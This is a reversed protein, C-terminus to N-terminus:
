QYLALLTATASFTGETLVAGADKVPVAKLKPLNSPNIVFNKSLEMPKDNITIQIGLGPVDTQITGDLFTAPTGTTLKLTLTWGSIDVCNISYDIPQQYNIGNVKNVGVKGFQVPRLKNGDDISCPPPEILTGTFTMNDKGYAPLMALMSFFLLFLKM